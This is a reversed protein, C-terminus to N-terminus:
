FVSILSKRTLSTGVRTSGVFVLSHHYLTNTVDVSVQQVVTNMVAIFLKTTNVVLCNMTFFSKVEFFTENIITQESFVLFTLQRLISSTHIFLPESHCQKIFCQWIKDGSLLVHRLRENKTTFISFFRCLEAIQQLPFILLYQFEQM